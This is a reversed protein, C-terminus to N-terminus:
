VSMHLQFHHIINLQSCIQVIVRKLETVSDFLTIIVKQKEYFTIRSTRSKRGLLWILRKIFLCAFHGMNVHSSILYDKRSVNEENRLHYSFLASFEINLCSNQLFIPFCM